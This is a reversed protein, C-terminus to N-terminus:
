LPDPARPPSSQWLLVPYPHGSIWKWYVFDWGSYNSQKTQGVFDGRPTPDGDLDTTSGTLPISGNISMDDATYNAFYTTGMINIGAIGHVDTSGPSAISGNLAISSSITGVNGGAIGGAGMFYSPTGSVVVEVRGLAYCTNISSTADVLYGVIGGASPQPFGTGGPGDAMINVWAYSDDIAGATLTGTIGGAYIADAAASIRASAYSVAIRGVGGGLFQGVIGGLWCDGGLTSTSANLRGTFSSGTVSTVTVGSSETLLGAIGGLYLFVVSNGAAVAGTVHSNIIAVDDGAGVIGGVALSNTGDFAVLFNGTVRVNRITTDVAKGALGGAQADNLPGATINVPGGLEYRITLDEITTTNVAGFFGLKMYTTSDSVAGSFSKITVSHGQGDFAAVFSDDSDGIPTWPQTLIIDNELYFTRAPNSIDLGNGVRRLDAESHLYIELLGAEYVPDVKMPIRVTSNRGTIVPILAQGSGVPSTLNAPDYALVQINWDGADLTLTVGGGGAELTRSEGPGTITLRYVLSATFNNSLASRSEEPPASKPLFLTLTGEGHGPGEPLDCSYLALLAAFLLTGALAGRLPSRLGTGPFTEKCM